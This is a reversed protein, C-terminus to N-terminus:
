TLFRFLQRREIIAASVLMSLGVILSVEPSFYKESLDWIGRWFLILGVSTVLISIIHRRKEITQEVTM